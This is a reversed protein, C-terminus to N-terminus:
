EDLKLVSAIAQPMDEASLGTARLEAVLEQTATKAREMGSVYDDTVAQLTVTVTRDKGSARRLTRALREIGSADFAVGNIYVGASEDGWTVTLVPESVGDNEVATASDWFTEKPM